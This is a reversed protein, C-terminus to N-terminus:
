DYIGTVFMRGDRHECLFAGASTVIQYRDVSPEGEWWRGVKRWPGAWSLVPVWRSGLRVREPMGADWEVEVTPPDDPVLAPSPSPVAGPWPAAPDRRPSPPTEDWRHWSVREGPDRGGQPRAQLVQDPGVLAQTQVLIRHAEATDYADEHLALQRGRDSLDEPTLRLRTVGGHIGPGAGRHAEDLWATLQWRVREALTTENFPDTNRWTRTRVAGDAAEAEVVVRHPIAGRLGRDALLRHALARGVFAAQELNELPTDFREEVALEPSVRRPSADAGEGRAIRHAELGETGFRSVMAQRPLAALEGLTTIGLWRFTAALEERGLTAIDLSRLFAADDAVVLVPPHGRALEAARQAAFPGAALGLRHGPGTLADIETVVLDVLAAEDGYYRRAGTVPAVLLGPRIVEVRPILEEVAAVVPEFAVSEAGPDAILTRITPCIAEAERRRMGVVVGARAAEEDVAVVRNDDDIVQAPEDSPADPRRM